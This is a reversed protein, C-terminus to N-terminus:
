TTVGVEVVPDQTPVGKVIVTVTLGEGTTVVAVVAVIQLPVLVFIENVADAPLLKVQVIPFMVPPTVPAVGPAPVVM